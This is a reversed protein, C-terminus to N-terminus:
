TYLTKVKDQDNKLTKDEFFQPLRTAYVFFEYVALIGQYEYM